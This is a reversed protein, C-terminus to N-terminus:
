THFEFENISEHFITIGFASYLETLDGLHSKKARQKEAVLHKGTVTLGTHDGLSVLRHPYCTPKCHPFEKDLIAPVFHYMQAGSNRRGPM